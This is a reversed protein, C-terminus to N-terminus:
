LTDGSVIYVCDFSSALPKVKSVSLIIDTDRYYEGEDDINHCSCCVCKTCYPIDYWTKKTKYYENMAEEKTDYEIICEEIDSKSYFYWKDTNLKRRKMSKLYNMIDNTEKETLTVNRLVDVVNTYNYKAKSVGASTHRTTPSYEQQKAKVM